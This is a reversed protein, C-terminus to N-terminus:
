FFDFNEGSRNVRRQRHPGNKELVKNYQKERKRSYNQVFILDLVFFIRIYRVRHSSYNKSPM